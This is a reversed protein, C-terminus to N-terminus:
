RTEIDGKVSSLLVIKTSTAGEKVGLHTYQKLRSAFHPANFTIRVFDATVDIAEIKWAVFHLQFLHLILFRTGGHSRM